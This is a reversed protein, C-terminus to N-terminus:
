EELPSSLASEVERRTGSSEDAVIIERLDGAGIAVAADLGAGRLWDPTPARRM